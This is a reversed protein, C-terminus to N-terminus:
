QENKGVVEYLSDLESRLWKLRREHKQRKKSHKTYKILQELKKMELEYRPILFLVKVTKIWRYVVETSKGWHEKWVKMMAEIM